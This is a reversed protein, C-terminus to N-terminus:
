RKVPGLVKAKELLGLLDAELQQYPAGIAPPKVWVVVDAGGVARNASLRLIESAQRRLRNRVVAKKSLKTSTVVAFRSQDLDNKAVKIKFQSSFFSRGLANVRKFDREKVLRRQKALM